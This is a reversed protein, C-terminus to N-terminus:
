DCVVIVHRNGRDSCGLQQDADLQRVLLSSRVSRREDSAHQVREGDLVVVQRDCLFMRSQKGL